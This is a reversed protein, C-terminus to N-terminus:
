RYHWNEISRYCRELDLKFDNVDAYSHKSMNVHLVRCEHTNVPDNDDFADVIFKFGCGALMTCIFAFLVIKM